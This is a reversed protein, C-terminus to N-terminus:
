DLLLFFVYVVDKLIDLGTTLLICLCCGETYRTWYYSSYMFLMLLLFFVYVVDKLIDLGTTLLICLCCGETYRTWYYSSYM